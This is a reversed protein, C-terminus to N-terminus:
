TISYKCSHLINHIHDFLDVKLLELWCLKSRNVIHIIRSCENCTPWFENNGLCAKEEGYLDIHYTVPRRQSTYHSNLRDKLWSFVYWLRCTDAVCTFCVIIIASYYVVECWYILIRLVTQYLGYEVVYMQKYESMM